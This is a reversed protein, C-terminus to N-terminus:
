KVILLKQRYTKGETSILVIYEGSPLDLNFIFFKPNFIKEFYVKEGLIAYIELGSVQSKFSPVQWKVSESLDIIPM